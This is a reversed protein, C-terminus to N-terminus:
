STLGESATPHLAAYDGDEDVSLVAWDYDPTMGLLEDRLTYARDPAAVFCRLDPEDDVEAPDSETIYVLRWKREARLESGVAEVDYGLDTFISRAEDILPTSLVGM